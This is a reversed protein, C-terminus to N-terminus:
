VRIMFLKGFPIQHRMHNVSALIHTKQQLLIQCHPVCAKRNVLLLKNSCMTDANTKKKNNNKKRALNKTCEFYLIYIQPFRCRVSQIRM